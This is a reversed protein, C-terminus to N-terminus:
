GSGGTDLANHQYGLIIGFERSACTNSNQHLWPPYTKDEM